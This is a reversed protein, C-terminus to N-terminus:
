EYDELKMMKNLIDLQKRLNHIRGAADPILKDVCGIMFYPCKECDPYEKNSQESCNILADALEEDSLNLTKKEESM